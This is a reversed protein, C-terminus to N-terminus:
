KYIRSSVWVNMSLFLFWCLLDWFHILKDSFYSFCSLLYLFGQLLCFPSSFFSLYLLPSAVSHLFSSRTYTFVFMLESQGVLFNANLITSGNDHLPPTYCCCLMHEKTETQDSIFRMVPRHLNQLSVWLLASVNLLSNLGLLTGFHCNNSSACYELIILWNM